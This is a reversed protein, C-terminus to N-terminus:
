LQVRKYRDTKAAILRQRAVSLFLVILGLWFGSVVWKVWVPVGTDLWFVYAGYASLPLITILLLLWGFRQMWLSPKDNVIAMVREKDTIQPLESRLAGQIATLDTLQQQCSPCSALHIRVQQSEQQTLEEDLYGSLLPEIAGCSYPLQQSM